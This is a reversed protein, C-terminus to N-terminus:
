DVILDPEKSPTLEDASFTFRYVASGTSAYLADNDFRIGTGGDVSGFRQTQDAKHASDLHLAIIGCNVQSDKRTSGYINGTRRLTLHRITTGLGDTVVSAHFGPPLRLGDPEDSTAAALWGALALAAVSLFAIVSKPQRM